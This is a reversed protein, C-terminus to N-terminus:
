VLFCLTRLQLISALSGVIIVTGIIMVHNLWGSLRPTPLIFLTTKFLSDNEGDEFLNPVFNFKLSQIALTHAKEPDLKFILSRLNSFM